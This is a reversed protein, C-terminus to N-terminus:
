SLVKTILLSFKYGYKSDYSAGPPEPKLSDVPLVSTRTKIGPDPLFESSHFPLGSWYKQRSFGMSRPAQHAVTRATVLLRVHSFHSLVCCGSDYLYGIYLRLWGWINSFFFESIGGLVRLVQTFQCACVCIHRYFMSYPGNTWLTDQTAWGGELLGITGKNYIIKDGCLKGMTREM